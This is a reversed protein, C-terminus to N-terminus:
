REKPPIGTFEPLPEYRSLPQYIVALRVANSTATPSDPFQQWAFDYAGEVRYNQSIQYDVGAEATAYNEATVQLAAQGSTGSLRMGRVGLFGSFRPYFAHLVRFRVEQDTMVVGESTPILSRLVDITVETVQYRLDVGVGGTFGNNSVTGATATQAQSREVGVRAYFKAIQSQQLDWEGQVGYDNTNNGGDQPAFHTGLGSVTLVSRPSVDFGVGASGTYSSYGIQEVQSQQYSAHEVDANLDLHTRQTFDYKYEPVARVLTQRTSVTIHGSPATSAEGLALGPFTAPLYDSYFIQQDSFQLIGTLDSRLTRQEGDIDLYGDTSQDTHDTPFYDSRIRPTIDLKSTQSIFDMALAADLYPGYVALEQDPIDALRYNDSYTGGLEVRPVFEWNSAGAAATLGLLAGAGLAASLRRCSSSM